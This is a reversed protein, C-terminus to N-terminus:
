AHDISPVNYRVSTEEEAKRKKNKSKASATTDAMDVDDDAEAAKAKKSKKPTAAAAAAEEAQRQSELLEEEFTKLLNKYYEIPHQEAALEFASKLDKRIKGGLAKEAM